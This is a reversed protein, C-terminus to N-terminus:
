ACRGGEKGVLHWPSVMFVETREHMTRSTTQNSGRCLCTRFIDFLNIRRQRLPKSGISDGPIPVAHSGRQSRVVSHFNKAAVRHLDPSIGDAAQFLSRNIRAQEAKTCIHVKFLQDAPLSGHNVIIPEPQAPPISGSVQDAIKKGDAVDGTEVRQPHILQPQLLFKHIVADRNPEALNALRKELLARKRFAFWPRLAQLELAEGGFIVYRLALARSALKTLMVPVLQRFASPTQNLVSVRERELLDLFAEPSRGVWYPVVVLRGGYLLAGWLEWVSFDFAYSHFLTWVDDPQFAFWGDTAEMLRVVNQHSVLVGKPQGTSGSTYIVYALNEPRTVCVPNEKSERAMAGWGADLCVVRAEHQPLEALLRQQTLLVQAQTEALMFALREQPYAPDLPVYAGGTKLIGLLGIVM